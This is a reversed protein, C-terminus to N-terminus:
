KHRVYSSVLFPFVEEVEGELCVAVDHTHVHKMLSCLMVFTPLCNCFISFAYGGRWSMSEMRTSVEGRVAGSPCAESAESVFSWGAHAPLELLVYLCFSFFLLFFLRSWPCLRPCWCFSVGVDAGPYPPPSLSSMKEGGNRGGTGAHGGGVGCIPAANNPAAHSQGAHNPGAAAQQVEKRRSDGRRLESLRVGPRAQGRGEEHSQPVSGSAPRPRRSDGNSPRLQDLSSHSNSRSLLALSRLCM